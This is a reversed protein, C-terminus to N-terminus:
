EGGFERCLERCTGVPLGDAMTVLAALRKEPREVGAPTWYKDREYALVDEVLRLRDWGRPDRGRILADALFAAFLPRGLPDIEHLLETTAERDPAVQGAKEFLGRVIEWVDEVTALADEGVHRTDGVPVRSSKALCSVTELWPGEATRELLLVRVPTVRDLDTRKALACIVKATVDPNRAPYDITMVTPKRPRWRAWDFRKAEAERLFGAAFGAGLGRMFEFALRSKGTGGPGHVLRWAFPCDLGVFHRLGEIEHDRGVFAAHRARYSFRSTETDPDGGLDLLPQPDSLRHLEVLLERAIAPQVRAFHQPSDALVAYADRFAARILEQARANGAFPEPGPEADRARKALRDVVLDAVREADTGCRALDAAGPLTAAFHKEFALFAVNIDDASFGSKDTTRRYRDEAARLAREIERGTEGRGSDIFHKALAAAGIGLAAVPEALGGGDPSAAATGAWLGICAVGFVKDFCERWGM